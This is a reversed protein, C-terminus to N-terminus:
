VHFANSVVCHVNVFFKQSPEKRFCDGVGSTGRGDFVNAVAYRRSPFVALLHRPVRRGQDIRDPMGDQFEPLDEQDGVRHIRHDSLLVARKGASVQATNGFRRVRFRFCENAPCTFLVPSVDCPCTHIPRKELM